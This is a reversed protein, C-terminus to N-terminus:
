LEYAGIDWSGDIPRAKGDLDVDIYPIPAGANVAPSAGTPRYNGPSGDLQPNALISSTAPTYNNLTGSYLNNGAILWDLEGSVRFDFIGHNAFLNNRLRLYVPDDVAAGYDDSDAITANEMVLWANPGTTLGYARNGTNVLGYVLNNIFFMSGGSSISVGIQTDFVVSNRIHSGNGGLLIGNRSAGSVSVGSFQLNDNGSSSLSIGRDGCEAITVEHFHANRMTGLSVGRDDINRIAVHEVRLDRISGGYLGQDSDDITTNLIQINHHTGRFYLAEGENRITLGDIVLHSANSNFNFAEPSSFGAGDFIVEQGPGAAIVIPNQATGSADMRHPGAYVGASLQILDGPQAADLAANLEANTAVPVVRLPPSPSGPQEPLVQVEITEETVLGTSTTETFTVTVQHVAEADVLGQIEGTEPDLTLGAPLGTAAFAIPDGDPDIANLLYMFPRNQILSYRDQGNYRPARNVNNVTVTIEVTDLPSTIFADAVALTWVYTISPSASDGGQEFDPTFVLTGTEPHLSANEPLATEPLFSFADGDADTATLTLELTEGEDITFETVAPPDLQAPRNGPPVPLKEAYGLDVGDLQPRSVGFFDTAADAHNLELGADIAPSGERLRFDGGGQAVFLPDQNVISSAAAAFGNTHGGRNQYYLNHSEELLNGSRLDVGLGGNDVIMSNVIESTVPDDLDTGRFAVGEEGNGHVVSHFLHLEAGETIKIGAEGANRIKGNIITVTKPAFGDQERRWLKVNAASHGEAVINVLLANANLDFGDESNNRAVCDIFRVDDGGITHFGDGDGSAGRGDDNYSSEVRIFTLNAGNRISIGAEYCHHIYCDRMVLNTIERLRLGTTRTQSFECQEIIIDTKPAFGEAAQDFNRIVFGFFHHYSADNLAIGDGSGDGQLIVTHGPFNRFVIPQEATGPTQIDFGNVGSRDYIADASDPDESGKVYVFDGPRVSAFAKDLTRWPANESTGPNADDANPHNRDVFYTPAGNPVLDILDVLTGIDRVDIWGGDLNLDLDPVDATSQMWNPLAYHLDAFDVYGDQNFDGRAIGSNALSTPTLALM